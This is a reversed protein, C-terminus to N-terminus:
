ETVSGGFPDAALEGQNIQESLAKQLDNEYKRVDELSLDIWKDIWCFIERHFKTFMKIYMNVMYSEARSQLAFWVFELEVIKYSCILPQTTQYWNDKLPGRNTKKSQFKTPDEDEVYEASSVPDAINIVIIERKSLQEPTLNHVNDEMKGNVCEKTLTNIYVHFKDKMYENKIHTKIRPYMNWSKEHLLTSEYPLIKRIFWPFKSAIKYIKHTYQAKVHLNDDSNKNENEHSTSLSNPVSSYMGPNNSVNNLSFKHNHSNDNSNSNQRAYNNESEDDSKVGNIEKSQHQQQQQKQSATATSNQDQNRVNDYSSNRKLFKSLAGLSKSSNLKKGSNENVNEYDPLYKNIDTTNVPVHFYENRIIEVGEGGRTNLRSVEAMSWLQGIYNEEVTLPMLIRFEILRM